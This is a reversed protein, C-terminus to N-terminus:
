SRSQLIKRESESRKEEEVFAVSNNEIRTVHWGQEEKIGMGM